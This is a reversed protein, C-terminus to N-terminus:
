FTKFILNNTFEKNRLKILRDSNKIRKIQQKESKIRQFFDENYVQPLLWYRGHNNTKKWTESNHYPNNMKLRFELSLRVQNGERITQHPLYSNFIMVQGNTHNLKYSNKEKLDQLISFYKKSYLFFKNKYFNTYKSYKILDKESSKLISIKPTNKNVCLYIVVNIIDFPEETWTDCHISSTLYKNKLLKPKQPHVIRIDMPFQIGNLNKNIIKLDKFKKLIISELRTMINLNRKLSYYQTKNLFSQVSKINKFTKNENYNFLDVVCKNIENQTRKNLNFSILGDDIFLNSNTKKQYIFYKKQIM